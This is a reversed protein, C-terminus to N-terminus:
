PCLLISCCLPCLPWSLFHSCLAHLPLLISLILSSVQPHLHEQSKWGCHIVWPKLNARPLCPLSLIPANASQLIRNALSGEAMTHMLPEWKAMWQDGCCGSAAASGLSSRMGTGPTGLEGQNDRRPLEDQGSMGWGGLCRSSSGSGFQDKMIEAVKGHKEHGLLHLPFKWSCCLRKMLQPLWSFPQALFTTFFLSVNCCHSQPEEM